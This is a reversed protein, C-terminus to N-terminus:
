SLLETVTYNATMTYSEGPGLHIAADRANATEVCVYQRWEGESLDPLQEGFEPGPNWVVTTGSNENEIEIQRGLKYDLIRPSNETPYIRDVEEGFMIPGRQVALRDTQSGGLTTDVHVLGEFGQVEVDEIDGVRFYTHLAEEFYFPESGTNTVTLSLSATADGLTAQLEATFPELVEVMAEPVDQDTIRYAVRWIGREDTENEILHWNLFRVFGHKETAGSQGLFPPHDSTHGDHDDPDAHTPVGFWPFCIPVGGHPSRGVGYDAACPSFILPGYTVSDWRSLHAGASHIEFTGTSTTARSVEDIKDIAPM